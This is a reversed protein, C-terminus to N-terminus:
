YFGYEIGTKIFAEVNEFPTGYEILDTPQLIFKGGIKGIEVTKKTISKIKDISGSKIVNVQDLNGAIIYKGDSRRKAESLDGDGIPPPSFPEVIKCGVEIYSEVLEMIQGCNHYMAPIGKGQVINMYRKEFPLVYKDFFKKGIFGGAVNAGINHIDIGTDSIANTYEEVRDIVFNMLKEYFHYDTLFLSYLQDLKILLAANNFPGQPSWTSIIGDNGLVNKIKTIYKKVTLPFSPNMKPEYKIILDLDKETKVPHKTCSYAHTGELTKYISFEQELNGGPTRILTKKVITKGRVYEENKIEWNENQEDLNVGGHILWLPCLDYLIRLFVDAGLQKQLEIIKIHTKFHDENDLEPYIQKIFNGEDLIFLTVPVRDPIEGNITKLFRERSNM